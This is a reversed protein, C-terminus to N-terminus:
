DVWANATPQMLKNPRNLNKFWGLLGVMLGFGLIPGAGYGVLPAPTMGATSCVFLVMYYAAVASLGQSSSISQFCLGFILAAASAIVAIGALLSHGLAL